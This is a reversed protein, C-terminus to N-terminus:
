WTSQEIPQVSLRRQYEKHRFDENDSVLTPILRTFDVTGLSDKRGHRRKSSYGRCPEQLSDGSGRRSSNGSGSGSDDTTPSECSSQVDDDTSGEVSHVRLVAPNRAIKGLCNVSDVVSSQPPSAVLPALGLQTCGGDIRRALLGTKETTEVQGLDNQRIDIHKATTTSTKLCDTQHKHLNVDSAIRKPGQFEENREANMIKSIDAFREISDRRAVNLSQMVKLFREIGDGISIGEEDVSSYNESECGTKFSVGKRSSICNDAQHLHKVM